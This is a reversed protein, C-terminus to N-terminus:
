KALLQRQVVGNPDHFEIGLAKELTDVEVEQTTATNPTASTAATVAGENSAASATTTTSSTPTPPPQQQYCYAAVVDLEEIQDMPSFPVNAIQQQQQPIVTTTVSTTAATSPRKASPPICATNHIDTTM